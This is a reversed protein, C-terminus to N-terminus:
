RREGTAEPEIDVIRARPRALDVLVPYDTSASQTNGAADQAQIRVYLKSPVGQGVKWLYRGTNRHAGAIPIWPGNPSGGYFLTIPEEGLNQDAVDWQILVQNNAVGQGQELPLLRLEPPTTDVVIEMDPREGQLPPDSALGVGSRVRMALGYRGEKPVKVRVPSKRDNDVGYKWWSEGNDQSIFVEVASVGSPGIDDIKYGINFERSNVFRFPVSSTPEEAPPNPLERNEDWRSTLPNANSVFGEEQQPAQAFDKQPTQAPTQAFPDATSRKPVPKFPLQEGSDTDPFQKPIQLATNTQSGPRDGAVPQRFDPGPNPKPVIDTAPAISTQVEAQGVNTAYDEVTGKVAVNGGEPLSWQTQGDAQPVISLPQWKKTNGQRYHLRLKTPDLNEDVANWTLQVWGPRTQRLALYLNPAGTDVIVKLGPEMQADGPTLQGNASLTRVSFWYEGDSPANFTFRGAQPEVTQSKRWKIGQDDSVYLQVETAALRQMEAPDYRFPIRFRPKNTHIPKTPIPVAAAASQIGAGLCAAALM